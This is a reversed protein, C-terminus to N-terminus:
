GGSQSSISKIGLVWAVGDALNAVTEAVVLANGTNVLTLQYSRRRGFCNNTIVFSLGDVTIPDSSICTSTSTLKLVKVGAPDFNIGPTIRGYRLTKRGDSYFLAFGLPYKSEWKNKEIFSNLDQSPQNTSNELLKKIHALEKRAEAVGRQAEQIGQFSKKEIPSPPSPPSIYIWIYNVLLPLGIVGAAGCVIPIPWRKHKHCFWAKGSANGCRLGGTFHLGRAFCRTKSVKKMSAKMTQGTIRLFRIQGNERLILQDVSM